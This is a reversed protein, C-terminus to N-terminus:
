VTIKNLWRERARERDTQMDSFSTSRPFWVSFFFTKKEKKMKTSHLSNLRIEFHRKLNKKEKLPHSLVDTIHIHTGSHRQLRIREPESRRETMFTVQTENIICMLMVIHKRKPRALGPLLLSSIHLIYIYHLADWEVCENM